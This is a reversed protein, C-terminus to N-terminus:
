SEVLMNLKKRREEYDPMLKELLRWFRPGHHREKIHCFEHFIVYDICEKPAKVLEINLYVRKKDACTGWRTRMTRIHLEPEAIGEAAARRCCEAFREQFIRTAHVRYWRNLLERVRDPAAVGATSVHLCGRACLVREVEGSEVKLRYQRGLYRHTEGGIYRRPPQKPLYLEFERWAKRIWAARKRIRERIMGASTGKPAKITVALDPHVSIELYKRRSFAVSYAIGTRGWRISDRM